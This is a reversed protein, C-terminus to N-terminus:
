CDLDNATLTNTFSNSRYDRDNFRADNRDDPNCKPDCRKARVSRADRCSCTHLRVEDYVGNYAILM